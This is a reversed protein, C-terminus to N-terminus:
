VTVDILEAPTVYLEDDDEHVVVFKKKNWTVIDGIKSGPPISDPLFSLFEKNMRVHEEDFGFQEVPLGLEHAANYRGEGNKYLEERKHMLVSLPTPGIVKDISFCEPFAAIIQQVRWNNIDVRGEITADLTAIGMMAFWNFEGLKCIQKWDKYPPIQGTEEFVISQLTTCVINLSRQSGVVLQTLSSLLKVFREFTSDRPDSKM